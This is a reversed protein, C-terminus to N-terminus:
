TAHASLVMSGAAAARASTLYSCGPARKKGVPQNNLPQTLPCHPQSACDVDLSPSCRHSFVVRRTDQRARRLRSEEPGAGRAARPESELQELKLLLGIVFRHLHVPTPDATLLKFKSVPIRVDDSARGPEVVNHLGKLTSTANGFWFGPHREAAAGSRKGQAIKDSAKLTLFYGPTDTGIGARRLRPLRNFFRYSFEGSNLCSQIRAFVAVALPRRPASIAM